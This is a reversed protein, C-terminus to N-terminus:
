IPRYNQADETNGKEHLAKIIATKLIEPFIGSAFSADYIDALPKKIFQACNKVV